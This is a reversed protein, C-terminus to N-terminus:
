DAFIVGEKLLQEIEQKEANTAVVKLNIAKVRTFGHCNGLTKTKNAPFGTYNSYGTANAVNRRGLIIMPKKSTMIGSNSSILGARHVHAMDHTVVGAGAVMLPVLAGGTGISGIASGAALLAGFLGNFSVSTLPIQQALNGNYVYLMANDTSGSKTLRVEAICTGTWFDVVYQVNVSGAMVEDTDLEVIGIFPLYLSVQTYPTYDGVNKNLENVNVSGLNIRKFQNSVVPCSLGPIAVAGLRVQRAAATTPTAWVRFLGIVGELPNAWIKQLQTLIDASWLYGGLTDLDSTSVSYVEFLKGSGVTTPLEPTIIPPVPIEPDPQVPPDAEIADDRPISIDDDGEITGDIAGDIAPNGAISGAPNFLWDWLKGWDITPDLVGTQTPAQTPNLPYGVADGEGVGPLAQGEQGLSDMFDSISSFAEALIAEPDLYPSDAANMNGALVNGYGALLGADFPGTWSGTGDRTIIGTNYSIPSVGFSYLYASEFGEWELQLSGLGRNVTLVTDGAGPNFIGVEYAFGVKRGLNDNDYAHFNLVIISDADYLSQSAAYNFFATISYYGDMTPDTTIRTFGSMNSDDIYGNASFVNYAQAIVAAGLDHAGLQATPNTFVSGDAIAPVNKDFVGLDAFASQFAAITNEDFIVNGAQDLFAYVKGGITSGAAMLKEAVSDWFNPAVSYLGVGAAVGLLPAIAAGAAGVDMTLLATGTSAGEAAITRVSNVIGNAGTKISTWGEAIVAGSDSIFQQIQTGIPPVSGASAGLFAAIDEYTMASM